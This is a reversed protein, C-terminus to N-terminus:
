TSGGRHSTEPSSLTGAAGEAESPHPSTLAPGNESDQALTTAARDTESMPPSVGRLREDDWRTFRPGGGSERIV